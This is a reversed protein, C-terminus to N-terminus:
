VTLLLVRHGKRRLKSALREAWTPWWRKASSIVVASGSQLVYLVGQYVSRCYVLEGNLSFGLTDAFEHLRAAFHEQAARCPELTAPFPVACVGLVM